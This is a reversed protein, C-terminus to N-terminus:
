SNEQCITNEILTAFLEIMKNWRRTCFASIHNDSKQIKESIKFNQTLNQALTFLPTFM